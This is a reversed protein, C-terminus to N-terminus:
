HQSLLVGKIFVLFFMDFIDKCIEHTPRSIRKNHSWISKLLHFPKAYRLSREVTSLTRSNELHKTTIWLDVSILNHGSIKSRHLLTSRSKLYGWGLHEALTFPEVWCQHRVVHCVLMIYTTTLFLCRDKNPGPTRYRGFCFWPLDYSRLNFWVQM